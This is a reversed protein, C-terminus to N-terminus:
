IVYVDASIYDRITSGVVPTNPHLLKDRDAQCRRKAEDWHGETQLEPREYLNLAVFVDVKAFRGLVRLKPNTNQVRFEWIERNGPELRAMRCRQRGRVKKRKLAVPMNRGATFNDFSAQLEARLVASANNSSDLFDRIEASVYVLRVKTTVRIDAPEVMFLQGHGCCEGIKAM